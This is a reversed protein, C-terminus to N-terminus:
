VKTSADINAGYSILLEVIDAHGNCSAFHLATWDSQLSFKYLVRPGCPLHLLLKYLNHLCQTLAGCEM